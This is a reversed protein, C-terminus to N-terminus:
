PWLAVSVRLRKSGSGLFEFDLEAISTAHLVFVGAGGHYADHGNYAYGPGFSFWKMPTVTVYAAGHVDWGPWDWPNSRPDQPTQSADVILSRDPSSYRLGPKFQPMGYEADGYARLAFPGPAYLNFTLGAGVANTRTDAAHIAPGLDWQAAAHAPSGFGACSVVVSACSLTRTIM